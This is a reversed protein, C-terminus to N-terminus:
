RNPAPTQTDLADCMLKTWCMFIAYLLTFRKCRINIIIITVLTSLVLCWVLSSQRDRLSNKYLENYVNYTNIAIIYLNANIVQGTVAVTQQDCKRNLWISHPNNIALAGDRLKLILNTYTTLIICLIENFWMAM